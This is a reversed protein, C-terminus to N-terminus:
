AQRSLPHSSFFQEARRYSAPTGIDIFRTEVRYGCMGRGISRTLIDRELSVPENEPIEQILQYPLLYVGANIWGARGVPDKEAFRMIRDDGDIEVTGYRSTDSKAALVLSVSARKQEHWTWFDVLDLDCYSDGNMVCAVETELLPLALRLAGATGLLETEQSYVIEVNGYCSGFQERIQEGLYGLCLVIRKMGGADIQDLIYSLFPRGNVEALVKPRDDVVTRLRTGLGGALVVGTVDRMCDPM